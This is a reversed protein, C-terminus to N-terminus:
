TLINSICHNLMTMFLFPSAVVGEAISGFEKEHDFIDDIQLCYNGGGELNLCKNSIDIVHCYAILSSLTLQDVTLGHYNFHFPADVHTGAHEACKFVGASYFSETTEDGICNMCLSFGEGGPWFITKDDLNYSLDYYECSVGLM